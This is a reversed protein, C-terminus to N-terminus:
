FLTSQLTHCPQYKSLKAVNVTLFNFLCCTLFLHFHPKLFFHCKFNPSKSTYVLHSSINFLHIQVYPLSYKMLMLLVYSYLSYNSKMIELVYCYIIKFRHSLVLTNPCPFMARHDSTSTRASSRLKRGLGLMDLKLSDSVQMEEKLADSMCM